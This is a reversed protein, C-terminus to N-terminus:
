RQGEAGPDFGHYAEVWDAYGRKWAEADLFGAFADRGPEDAPFPDSVMLLDLMVRFAEGDVADRRRQRSEHQERVTM